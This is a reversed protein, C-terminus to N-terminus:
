KRGFAPHLLTNEQREELPLAQIIGDRKIRVHLLVNLGILVAYMAVMGTATIFIDNKYVYPVSALIHATDLMYTLVM